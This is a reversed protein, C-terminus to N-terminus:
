HLMSANLDDVNGLRDFRTRLSVGLNNYRSPRNPHGDPTLNLAQEQHVIAAKLDDVNGLSRFLM